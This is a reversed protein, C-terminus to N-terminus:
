GGFLRKLISTSNFKERYTLSTIKGSVTLIENEVNLEEIHLLEGTITLEGCSSIAIITEENFSDVDSIGTLTLRERNELNLTHQSVNEM